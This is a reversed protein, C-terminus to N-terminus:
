SAPRVSWNWSRGCCSALGGLGSGSKKWESCIPTSESEKRLIIGAGAGAGSSSASVMATEAAAALEAGSFRRFEREGGSVVGAM